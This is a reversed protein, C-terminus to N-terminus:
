RSAAPWVAKSQDAKAPSHTRTRRRKSARPSRPAFSRATRAHAHTREPHSPTPPAHVLRSSDTVRSIQLAPWALLLPFSVLSNISCHMITILVRHSCMCSPHSNRYRRVTRHHRRMDSPHSILDASVLRSSVLRSLSCAVAPCVCPRVTKM